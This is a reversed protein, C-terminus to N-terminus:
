ILVANLGEVKAPIKQNKEARTVNSGPLGFFHDKADRQFDSLARWLVAKKNIVPRQVELAWPTQAHVGNLM